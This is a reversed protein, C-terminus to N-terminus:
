SAAKENESGKWIQYIREMAEMFTVLGREYMRMIEKAEPSATMQKFDKYM